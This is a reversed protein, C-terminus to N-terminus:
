FITEPLFFCLRVFRWRGAHFPVPFACSGSTGGRSLPDLGNARLYLYHNRTPEPDCPLRWSCGRHDDDGGTSTREGRPPEVAEVVDKRGTIASSSPVEWSEFVSRWCWVVASRAPDCTADSLRRVHLRPYKHTVCLLRDNFRRRVVPSHCSVVLGTSSNEKPSEFTVDIGTSNSDRIVLALKPETGQAQEKCGRVGSGEEKSCRLCVWLCGRGSARLAPVVM